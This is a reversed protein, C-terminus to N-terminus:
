IIDRIETPTQRGTKLNKSIVHDAKLRQFRDMEDNILTLMREAVELQNRLVHFDVPKYIFDDAGVGRATVFDELSTKKGTVLFFFTYDAASSKRVRQCLELGDMGPMMWDSIIIRIPYKQFADWAEMGNEAEVVKYGLNVCSSRMVKRSIVDDDVILIKM